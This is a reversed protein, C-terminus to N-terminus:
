YSWLYGCDLNTSAELLEQINQKVINIEQGLKPKENAPLNAMTKMVDTMRGKKGFYAIRINEIDRPHTASEIDLSAQHQLDLISQNM